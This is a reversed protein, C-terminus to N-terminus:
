LLLLPAAVAVTAFGTAFVGAAGSTSPDEGATPEATEMMTPEVTAGTPEPTKDCAPQEAPCPEVDRRTSCCVPWGMEYCDYDPSWTCYSAGVIKEATPMGTPAVTPPGPICERVTLDCELGPCCEEFRGPKADAGCEVTKAGVVGCLPAPTPPESEGEVCQRMDRDCIYGPCCTDPRGEKPDAGCAVAKAGDLGCDTPLNEPKPSPTPEGSDELETPEKTTEDPEIPNEPEPIGEGDATCKKEANCALGPCCEAPRNVQAIGCEIAKEGEAACASAQVCKAGQCVLGDCCVSPRDPNTVGPCEQARDGEAACGDQLGRFTAPAALAPTSVAAAFLALTAIQLKM